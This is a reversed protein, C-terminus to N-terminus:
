NTEELHRGVDDASQDVLKPANKKLKEVVLHRHLQNRVLGRRQMAKGIADDHINIILVPKNNPENRM